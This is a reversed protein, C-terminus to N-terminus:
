VGDTLPLASSHYATGPITIFASRWEEDYVSRFTAPPKCDYPRESHASPPKLGDRLDVAPILADLCTITNVICQRASFAYGSREGWM